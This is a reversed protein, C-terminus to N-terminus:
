GRLVVLLFELSENRGMRYSTIDLVFDERRLMSQVDMTVVPGRRGHHVMSSVFEEIRLKTQVDM